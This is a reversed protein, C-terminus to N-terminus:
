KYFQYVQKIWREASLYRPKQDLRSFETPLGETTIQELSRDLAMKGRIIQISRKLLDTHEAFESMTYIHMQEPKFPGHGAIIKTDAPFSTLLWDITAFYGDINGGGDAYDIIPFKDFLYDGVSLVKHKKFYIFQDGDTHGNKLPTKFVQIIENNFHFTLSDSYTLKVLGNDPMPSGKGLMDPGAIRKRQNEPAIVLADNGFFQLAETHDRHFHTTLVIDAHQHGRKKIETEILDATEMIGPDVLLVGDKGTLILTSPNGIRSDPRIYILSNSITVIDISPVIENAQSFASFVIICILIGRCM